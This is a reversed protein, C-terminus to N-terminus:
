VKIEFKRSIFLQNELEVLNQIFDNKLKQYDSSYDKSSKIDSLKFYVIPKKENEFQIKMALFLLDFEYSDKLILEFVGPKINVNTRYSQLEGQPFIVVFNKKKKLLDKAFEFSQIVDRHKSQNISFAGIHNFFWYRKITEELVMMYIKYDSFFKRNILDVFFGDWWSFHNPLVLLSNNNLKKPLEGVVFFKNFFKKFQNNIYFNFLYRLFKNHKAEIM